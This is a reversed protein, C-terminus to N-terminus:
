TLVQTVIQQLMHTDRALGENDPTLKLATEMHTLAERLRKAQALAAGRLAHMTSQLEKSYVQFEKNKQLPHKGDLVTIGADTAEIAQEYRGERLSLSAYLVIADLNLPLQEKVQGALEMAAPFDAGVGRTALKKAQDLLEYPTFRRKHEGDKVNTEDSLTHQAAGAVPGLQGDAYIDRGDRAPVAIKRKTFSAEIVVTNDTRIAPIKLNNSDSSPRLAKDQFAEGQCEEVQRQLALVQQERIKKEENVQRQRAEIDADVQRRKEAALAEAERRTQEQVYADYREYSEERRKLADERSGDFELTAWTGPSRKLLHISLYGNSLKCRVRELQVTDYLDINSVYHEAASVTICLDTVTVELLQPSVGIPVKVNVTLTEPTQSLTFQFSLAM